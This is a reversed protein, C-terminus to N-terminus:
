FYCALSIRIWSIGNKNERVEFPMWQKDAMLLVIFIFTSICSCSFQVFFLLLAFARHSDLTVCVYLLLIFTPSFSLSLSLALPFFRTVSWKWSINLCFRFLSWLKYLRLPFFTLSRAFSTFLLLMAFLQLLRHTFHQSLPLFLHIVTLKRSHTHQRRALYRIFLRMSM